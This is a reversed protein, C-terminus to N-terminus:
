LIQVGLYKKKINKNFYKGKSESSIFEKVIEIPVDIYKYIHTNKFKIYLVKTKDNYVFKKIVSSEVEIAEANQLNKSITEEMIQLRKSIKEEMKKIKKITQLNM